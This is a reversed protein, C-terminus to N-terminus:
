RQGGENPVVKSNAIDIAIAGVKHSPRVLYWPKNHISPNKRINMCSEIKSYNAKNKGDHGKGEIDWTEEHLSPM